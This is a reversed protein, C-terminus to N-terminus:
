NGTMGEDAPCRQFRVEDPPHALDGVHPHVAGGALYRQHTELPLFRRRERSTMIISWSLRSLESVRSLSVASRSWRSLRRSSATLRSSVRRSASAKRTSRSIARLLRGEPKVRPVLPAGLHRPLDGVEGVTRSRAPKSPAQG